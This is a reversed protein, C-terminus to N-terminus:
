RLTKRYLLVCTHKWVALRSVWRVSLSALALTRLRYLKSSVSAIAENDAVQVGAVAPPLIPVLEPAIYLIINHRYWIEVKAYGEIAPRVADFPKYGHRNFLARWFEYPQENIHNEGGQGPPAASFLIIGSHRVLNEILTESASRPIHEGVELCQALDFRRGLDFPRTIDQAQFKEAPIMLSEPQVYDGDVGLYDIIAQNRYERLWAGTGCGVDLVSKIGLTQALLPVIKQASRTSGEQIYRFFADEYIYTRSKSSNVLLKWDNRATPISATGGVMDTRLGYFPFLRGRGCSELKFAQSDPCLLDDSRDLKHPYFLPRELLAEDSKGSSQTQLM